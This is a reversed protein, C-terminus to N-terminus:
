LKIGSTEASLRVVSSFNDELSAFSSMLAAMSTEDISVNDGTVMRCAKVFLAKGGDENGEKVAKVIESWLATHDGVLQEDEVKNNNSTEFPESSLKTKAGKKGQVSSMNARTEAELSSLKVEKAIQSASTAKLSGYQGVHIVPERDEYTKLVAELTENNSSALKVFDMKKLEAPSVKACSRLRAFRSQINAARLALRVNGAQSQFGKLAASLKAKGEDSAIAKKKEEADKEEDELKKASLKAAEKEKEEKEKTEKEEHEAALKAKKEDEEAALKAKDDADKDKSLKTKDDEDEDAGLKTKEEDTMKSLKEKAEDESIKENEMLRKVKKAMSVAGKASLLCANKAAPFPTITLEQLEGLDLDAGISLHTWRGDAVKEWNELGLIRVNGFLAVVGNHTGLELPGILRGVTDKASTSHDLQIPPYDAMRVTDGLAALKANHNAILVEIHAPTIEVEGDMSKFVGAYVLLARKDTQNTTGAELGINGSALNIKM